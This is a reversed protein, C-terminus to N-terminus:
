CFYKFIWTEHFSSTYFYTVFKSLKSFYTRHRFSKLDKLISHCNVNCLNQIMICLIKFRLPNFYLFVLSLHLNRTFFPSVTAAWLNRWVTLLRLIEPSSHGIKYKSSVHTLWFQELFYMQCSSGHFPLKSTGGYFSLLNPKGHIILLFCANNRLAHPSENM